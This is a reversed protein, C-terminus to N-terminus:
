GRMSKEQACLRGTQPMSAAARDIRSGVERVPSEGAMAASCHKGGPLSSVKDKTSVVKLNSAAM